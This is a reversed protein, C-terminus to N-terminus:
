LYTIIVQDDKSAKSFGQKGISLKYFDLNKCIERWSINDPIPFIENPDEQVIMRPKPRVSKACLPSHMVPNEHSEETHVIADFKIKFRM